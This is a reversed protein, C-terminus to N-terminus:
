AGDVYHGTKIAVVEAGSEPRMAIFAPHTALGIWPAEASQAYLRFHLRGKSDKILVRNGFEAASAARFRVVCGKPFDPAMADDELEVEFADPLRVNMELERMTMPKQPVKFSPHSLRQAESESVYKPGLGTKIWHANIGTLQEFEPMNKPLSGRALANGITGPSRYGLAKALSEQTYGREKYAAEFRDTAETVYTIERREQM